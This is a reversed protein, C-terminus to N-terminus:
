PRSMSPANPGINGNWPRAPESYHAWVYGGVLAAVIAAALGLQVPRHQYWRSVVIPAVPPPLPEPVDIVPPPSLQKLVDVPSDRGLEKVPGFGEDGDRWSQWSIKGNTMSLLVADHVNVFAALAKMASARMAPDQADILAM